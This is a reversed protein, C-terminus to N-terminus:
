IRRTTNVVEFDLSDLDLAGQGSLGLSYYRTKRGLGFRQRHNRQVATASTTYAHMMDATEGGRVTFDVNPGASGGLYVSVMTKKLPTDFDTTCLDVAWTIPAGADTLGGLRYLGDAAVGYYADRFRVIQTFPYNTYRTLQADSMDNKRRLNVDPSVGLNLVYAEFGTAALANGSIFVRAMPMTLRAAAGASPILMPMLAIIQGTNVRTLSAVVVAMPMAASIQATAGTTVSAAAAFGSLAAHAEGAGFAASQPSPCAVFMASSGAVRGDSVVTPMPMVALLAGINAVTGTASAVASPLRTTMVAHGWSLATAASMQATIRDDKVSGTSSVVPAPM